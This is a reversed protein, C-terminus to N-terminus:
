ILIADDMIIKTLEPIWASNVSRSRPLDGERLAGESLITIIYKNCAIGVWYNTPDNVDIEHHDLILWTRSDLPEPRPGLCM